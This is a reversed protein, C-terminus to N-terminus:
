NMLVKRARVNLKRADAVLTPTVHPRAVVRTVISYTRKQGVGLDGVAITVLKGRVKASRGAAVQGDKAVVLHRPLRDVLVVKALDAKGSNSIQITWTVLDGVTAKSVSASKSVRLTGKSAAPDSVVPGKPNDADVVKAPQPDKDGGVIVTPPTPDDKSDDKPPAPACVKVWEQDTATFAYEKGEMAVRLANVPGALGIIRATNHWTRCEGPAAKVYRTYSFTKTTTLESALTRTADGDLTDTVRVARPGQHTVEAASFDVPVQVSASTASQGDNWRVTATNTVTGAPVASFDCTYPVYVTAGGPVTPAAGTTCGTAGTTSDEVSTVTVAAANPNHIAIQGTVTIASPPSAQHKVRVSYPVSLSQDKADWGTKPSAWKDITWAHRISYGPVATKTVKLPQLDGPEVARWDLNDLRAGLSAQGTGDPNIIASESLRAFAVKTGDPAPAPYGDFGSGATLPTAGTGDPNISWVDSGGAGDNRHYYIKSGDASWEPSRYSAGDAPVLTTVAGTTANVLVVSAPNLVAVITTGDPSWDPETYGLPGTLAAAGTGDANVTWLGSNVISQYVIKTGDPSWAPGRGSVNLNVRNGGDADMVHIQEIDADRTSAFVIRQGDASWEPELNRKPFTEATLATLGSGDPNMTRIQQATIGNFPDAGVILGNAGPFTAHATGATGIVLGTAVSLALALRASRRHHPTHRAM